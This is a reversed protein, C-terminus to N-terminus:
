NRQFNIKEDDRREAFVEEIIAGGICRNGKYLVVQQGPTVAEAGQPYYVEIENNELIKIEVPIDSQRYRFKATINSFDFNLEDIIQNFNSAHLRYSILLQKHSVPAVYVIKNEIDFGSVFHPEKMGGLNLGKRQGITFYMAGQHQGVVKNDVASVINGPQAPIYNQLFQSFNREGIFCIGTSDKKNAVILNQELAIKRVEKKTYEALPMIIKELQKPSLQALFYSQDKSEDDAKFLHSNEVKAYHGMAVFDADFTKLAYNLFKDFKIYKNCLIDPNPTRGKKYESIFNEFVYEWYEDIFDVRHIPIGIEKAVQKADLYDSEQPCIDDNITDNGKIDNNALSDWNRMFLGIVEHGQKKLLYASVASDVGGSLGVVIKAMNEKRCLFFWM